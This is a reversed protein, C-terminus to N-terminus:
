INRSMYFRTDNYITNIVDTSLRDLNIIIGDSGQKINKKDSRAVMKLIEVKAPKTLSNINNKIFLIKNAQSIKADPISESTDLFASEIQASLDSEM